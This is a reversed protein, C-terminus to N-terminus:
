KEFVPHKQGLLLIENGLKSVLQCIFSQVGIKNAFEDYVVGQFQLDLKLGAM